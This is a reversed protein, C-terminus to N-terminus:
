CCAADKKAVLHEVVREMRMFRSGKVLIAAGPVARSCVQACLDEIRAHWIGAQGFEGSAHRALDGTALLEDIGM